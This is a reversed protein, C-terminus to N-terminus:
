SADTGSLSPLQSASRTAAVTEGSFDDQKIRTFFRSMGILYFIGSYAQIEMFIIQIVVAM